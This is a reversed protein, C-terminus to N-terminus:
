KPSDRGPSQLHLSEHHQRSVPVQSRDLPYNRTGQTRANRLYPRRKSIEMYEYLSKVGAAFGCLKSIELAVPSGSVNKIFGLRITRKKPPQQLSDELLQLVIICEVTRLDKFEKSFILLYKPSLLVSVVGFREIILILVTSIFLTNATNAPNTIGFSDCQTEVLMVMGIAIRALSGLMGVYEMEESVCQFFRGKGFVLLAGELAVVVTATTAAPLALSVACEAVFVAAISLELAVSLNAQTDRHSLPLCVIRFAWLGAAQVLVVWSCLERPERRLVNFALWILFPCYVPIFEYLWNYHRLHRTRLLVDVM